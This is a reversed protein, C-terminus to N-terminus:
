KIMEVQIRNESAGTVVIPIELDETTSTQIVKKTTNDEFTIAGIATLQLKVSVRQNDKNYVSIKYVNSGPTNSDVIMVDSKAFEDRVTYEDSAMKYFQDLEYHIERTTGNIWWFIGNILGAAVGNPTKIKKVLTITNKDADIVYEHFEQGKITFIFRNGSHILVEERYVYDMEGAARVYLKRPDNEDIEVIYWGSKGSPTGTEIRLGSVLSHYCFFKTESIKYCLYCTTCRVGINNGDVSSNPSDFHYYNKLGSAISPDWVITTDTGPYFTYTKTEPVWKVASWRLPSSDLPWNNMVYHFGNKMAATYSVMPLNRSDENRDNYADRFNPKAGASLNASRPTYNNKIDLYFVPGMKGALVINESDRYLVTPQYSLYPVGGEVDVASLSLARYIVLSNKDFILLYMRLRTMEYFNNDEENNQGVVGIYNDDVFLIKPYHLSLHATKLINGYQDLKSLYTHYSTQNYPYDVSHIIYNENVNTPHFWNPKMWISNTAGSSVDSYIMNHMYNHTNANYFYRSWQLPLYFNDRCIIADARNGAALEIPDRNIVRMDSDVVRGDIIMGGDRFEALRIIPGDYHKPSHIVGM